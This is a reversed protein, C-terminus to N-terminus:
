LCRLDDGAISSFLQSILGAFAIYAALASGLEDHGLAAVAGDDTALRGHFELLVVALIGVRLVALHGVLEAFTVGTFRAAAAHEAGLAALALYVAAFFVM